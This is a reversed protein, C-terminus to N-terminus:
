KVITVKKVEKRNNQNDFVEIFYIGFKDITIEKSLDKITRGLIDICRLKLGEGDAFYTNTNPIQIIVSAQILNNKVGLDAWMGNVDNEYVYKIKWLDGSRHIEGDIDEIELHVIFERNPYLDYGDYETGYNGLRYYGFPEFERALIERFDPVVQRPWFIPMNANINFEGTGIRENIWDIWFSGEEYHELYVVLDNGRYINAKLDKIEKWLEFRFINHNKHDPFVVKCEPNNKEKFTVADGKPASFPIKYEEFTIQAFIAPCLLLITLLITIKKM